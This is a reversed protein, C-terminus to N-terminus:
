GKEALSAVEDVQKEFADLTAEVALSKTMDVGCKKLLEIPYDNGGSSLLKLYKGIIERDGDLFRSLIAQSAAYSTAYQFVYFSNYFHPIRCWKLVSKEDNALTSGYYKVTLEKWLETMMDPSLANGKEVEEHIALEFRAYFVQCFFTQVTNDIQRNLLYMRDGPDDATKLLHQLLLGENLTSAVEAVFISYHAKQYPQAVSSFHSHMAHGMEHALTFMSNVTDNYNMLIFPHVAYNGWNFAGSSKGATEYVDVWRSEFAHGLAQIYKEGLPRLAKTIQEIADDYKIEYDHQPFLPCVMDYLHIADLNLIKKRLEVWRHFTELRAETGDLLAHYVEIPINDGDLSSHLCSDFRRARAYFNDNNVSGALSAGLTNLHGRYPEYFAENADRRVRANASLLLKQYRQKTLEVVNGHEDKVTPYKIDADDLMSFISEAGRAMMASSALLEEVEESRVHKRSRILDRIYFDYIDTKEFQESLEVLQDDSLALLEPEVFSFAAGAQSGLMAARDTLAQFESQRNDLDKNLRAYQFLNFVIQSLQTRLQLCRYLTSASMSLKGSYNHAKEIMTRAEQFDEDWEKRSQYIDTLQWQYKRDIDDRAPQASSKATATTM